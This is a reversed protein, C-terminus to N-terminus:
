ALHRLHQGPVGAACRGACAPNRHGPRQHTRGAGARQRPARVPAGARRASASSPPCGTAAPVGACRDAGITPRCAAARLAPGGATARDPRAAAPRAKRHTPRWPACPVAASAGGAARHVSRPWRTRSARGPLPSSWLRGCPRAPGRRPAASRRAWCATRTSSPSTRSRVLPLTTSATSPM